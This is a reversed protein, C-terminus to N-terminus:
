RSRLVAEIVKSRIDKRGNPIGSAASKVHREWDQSCVFSYHKISRKSFCCSGAMCTRRLSDGISHVQLLLFKCLLYMVAPQLANIAAIEAAAKDIMVHTFQVGTGRQVAELLQQFM